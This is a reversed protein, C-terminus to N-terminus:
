SRAAEVQVALVQCSNVPKRDLIVACLGCSGEGDCGNRVSIVGKRRLADRLTENPECDWAVARGNLKFAVKM